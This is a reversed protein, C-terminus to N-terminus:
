FVFLPILLSSGLIGLWNSQQPLSEFSQNILFGEKQHKEGFTVQHEQLIGPIQGNVSKSM